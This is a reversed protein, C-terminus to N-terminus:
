KLAVHNDTVFRDPAPAVLEARAERMADLSRTTLRAGGPVEVFHEHCQAALRIQQPSCDILVADFEIEQQLLTAILCCGLPKELEHKGSTGLCRALDHAVLHVTIRRCLGLDGLQDVDLVDEDFGTGPGVVTSFVVM